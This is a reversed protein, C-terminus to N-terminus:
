KWLHLANNYLLGWNKQFTSLQIWQIDLPYCLQNEYYKDEQPYRNIQHIASDLKQVVPGLNFKM